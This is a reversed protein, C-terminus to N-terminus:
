NKEPRAAATYVQVFDRYTSFRVNDGFRKRVLGLFGGLAKEAGVWKSHGIMVLPVPLSKKQNECQKMLRGVMSLMQNVTLKCFDLKKAHWGFFRKFGHISRQPEGQNRTAERVAACINRDERLYQRALWLRRPTLMSLCRTLETAIPVELIGEGSSPQNINDDHAYWAHVNSHANRYDYTVAGNNASGWKFVSTDSKLGAARLAALYPRSPETNWQGARFGICEYDPCHPRLSTELDEKARRLLTVVEGHGFDTLHYHAYDLVWRRNEWRANIWQPHLHLQVDHGRQVAEVLQRRIEVGPDYGLHEGFGCNETKEFAWVEGIEVMITLKAEHQQCVDFLTWTPELVHHYVDGTGDGSIEYDLAIIIHFM